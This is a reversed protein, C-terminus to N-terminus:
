SGGRNKVKLRNIARILTAEALFYDEESKKRLMEERAEAEAEKSREADIDEPREASEVIILVDNDEVRIMGSSVAAVRDEGGKMRYKLMGPVISVVLNEHHAMVGYEGDFTPVVVSEAEGKAFVGDAEYVRLNFYKM